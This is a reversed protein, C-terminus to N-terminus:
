DCYFLNCQNKIVDKVSKRSIGSGARASCPLVGLLHYICGSLDVFFLLISVKQSLM